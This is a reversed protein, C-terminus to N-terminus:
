ESLENQKDQKRLLKRAAKDLKKKDPFFTTITHSAMGIGWGLLMFLAWTFRGDEQMFNLGMTISNVGIYWLFHEKWGQKKKELVEERAEKLATGNHKEDAVARELDQETLGLEKGVEILQERSIDGGQSKQSLARQLILEMEEQTYKEPLNM